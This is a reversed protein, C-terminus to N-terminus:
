YIKIGTRKIENIFPDDKQFINTNFHHIEIDPYKYNLLATYKNNQLFNLTFLDSILAIDIDSYKTATGKVSSGFLWAENV